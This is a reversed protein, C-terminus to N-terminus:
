KWKLTEDGDSGCPTKKPPVFGTKDEDKVHKHEYAIIAQMCIDKQEETLARGDPWKGIEIAERFRQYIEPTVIQAVDNINMM